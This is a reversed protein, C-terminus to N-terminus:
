FGERSRRGSLELLKERADYMGRLEEEAEELAWRMHQPINAQAEIDSNISEILTPRSSPTQGTLWDWLRNLGTTMSNWGHANTQPRIETYPAFLKSLQTHLKTQPTKYVFLKM